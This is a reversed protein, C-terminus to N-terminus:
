YIYVSEPEVMDDDFPKIKQTGEAPKARQIANSKSANPLFQGETKSNQPNKKRKEKKNKTKPALVPLKSNNKTALCFQIILGPKQLCKM